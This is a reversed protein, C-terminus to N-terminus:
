PMTLRPSSEWKDHIPIRKVASKGRTIQYLLREETELCTLKNGYVLGTDLGIKYPLDFFADTQPTHGFLITYPLQHSSYIFNHRIWFLEAETQEELTKQPHIGAHVCLYPEMVFYNQLNKYFDMHNPPIASRVAESSLNQSSLGYSVLTALGGNYFFMEGHQGGLGLFSLLMDEHNGKLFILECSSDQILDLLYSVVARSDPGRDIYDGLFVLRDQKELPLNEILCALEKCCGHIDGIVYSRM